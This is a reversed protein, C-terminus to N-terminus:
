GATAENEACSPVGWLRVTNDGSATVLAVGNSNFSVRLVAKRHGSVTHLAQGTQVNWLRAISDRGGSALLQGDPSFAISDVPQTHGNLVAKPTWTNCHWLRV